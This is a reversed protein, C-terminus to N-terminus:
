LHSFDSFFEFFYLLIFTALMVFGGFRPVFGEHIKQEAQYVGHFKKLAQNNWLHIVFLNLLVQAFFPVLFLPNLDIPMSVNM